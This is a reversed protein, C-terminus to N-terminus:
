SQYGHDSRHPAPGYRATEPAAANIHPFVTLMNLIAGFDTEKFKIDIGCTKVQDAMLQVWKSRNPRGARVAITTSLKQGAKEYIGDSGLTWGAGEILSKSQKM